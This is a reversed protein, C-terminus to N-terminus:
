DGLMMMMMLSSPKGVRHSYVPQTGCTPWGHWWARM